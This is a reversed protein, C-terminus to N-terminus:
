FVVLHDTLQSPYEVWYYTLEIRLRLLKKGLKISKLKTKALKVKTVNLPSYIQEAM